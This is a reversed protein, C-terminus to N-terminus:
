WSLPIVAEVIRAMSLGISFNYTEFQQFTSFEVESGREYWTSFVEWLSPTSARDIRYEANMDATYTTDSNVRVNRPNSANGDNWNSFVYRSDIGTLWPSIDKQQPTVVSIQKTTGSNVIMGKPSTFRTGDIRIDLALDPSTTVTLTFKTPTPCGALMIILTASLTILAFFKIKM